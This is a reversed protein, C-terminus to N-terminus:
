PTGEVRAPVEGDSVRLRFVAGPPFDAVQRLVRGAADRAVAYGRDLVRLPSLAELQGALAGLRDRRDAVLARMRHRLRHEAGRLREAVVRTRRRLGGGLRGALVAVRDAVERRDPLALEMAASPTAARLDAVLDALSVDTEHGVASIVPVRVAAVARCVQERDFAGLDERSGGGRALICLDVPLRNVLALARVLEREAPEGQVATNVVLLRIAPWRRRAVTRMDGLAAGDVSTVLAVARPFAPPARKRAPDFLGDRTLAEKTRLYALQRAGVAATPLVTVASFRLEGRQEYLDPRALIYVEAGVAPAGPLRRAYSQWVVCRIQAADDKLTFYWHGRQHVRLEAIEGKIWIQGVANEVARRLARVVDAVSWARDHEEGGAPPGPDFLDDGPARRSM